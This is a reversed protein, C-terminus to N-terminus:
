PSKDYWLWNFLVYVVSLCCVFLVLIVQMNLEEAFKQDAIERENHQKKQLWAIEREFTPDIPTIAKRKCSKAVIKIMLLPNTSCKQRLEAVMTTSYVTSLKNTSEDYQAVNQTIDNIFKYTAFYHNKNEALLKGFNAVRLFPFNNELEIAANQRYLPTTEWSTSTFDIEKEEKKAEEKEFGKELMEQVVNNVHNGHAKLLKEVFARKANPLVRLVEAVPNAAVYVEEEEEDEKEENEDDPEDYNEEEEQTDEMSKNAAELNVSVQKVINAVDRDEPNVLSYTRVQQKIKGETNFPFATLLRNVITKMDKSSLKQVAVKELDVVEPVVLPQINEVIEAEEEAEQDLMDILNAQQSHLHLADFKICCFNNFFRVKRKMNDIEIIFGTQSV